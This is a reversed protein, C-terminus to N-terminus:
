KEGKQLDGVGNACIFAHRACMVAGVGSALYGNRPKNAHLIAKHESSCYNKQRAINTLVTM